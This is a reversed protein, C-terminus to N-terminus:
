ATTIILLVVLQLYLHQSVAPEPLQPDSAVGPAQQGRALLGWGLLGWGMGATGKWDWHFDEDWVLWEWEM